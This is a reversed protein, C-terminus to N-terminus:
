EDGWLDGVEDEPLEDLLGSAAWLDRDEPRVMGHRAYVAERHVSVALRAIALDTLRGSLHEVLVRIMEARREWEAVMVECDAVVSEMTEWEGISLARKRDVM